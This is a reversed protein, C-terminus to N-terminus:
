TRPPTGIHWELGHAGDPRQRGLLDLLGKLEPGRGGEARANGVFEVSGPPAFSGHGSLQLPGQLTFITFRAPGGAARMEVRYSGLPRVESLALAVGSWQAAASGRLEEGNWALEAVDLELAGQPRWPTALPLFSAAGAAEGSAKLNRAEWAGFSRAVEGAGKFAASSAQVDFAARGTLLRAPLLRWQLREIALPGALTAVTARAAGNWVTGTADHLQLAGHTATAARPAVVSAPMQAVLFGLYAAIGLAAMPLVRM